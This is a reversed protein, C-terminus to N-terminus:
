RRNKCNDNKLKKPKNFTWIVTYKIDVLPPCVGLQLLVCCWLSQFFHKALM